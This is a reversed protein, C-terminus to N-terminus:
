HNMFGKWNYLFGLLADNAKNIAKWLAEAEEQKPGHGTVVGGLVSERM